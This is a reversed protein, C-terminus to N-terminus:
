HGTVSFRLTGKPRPMGGPQTAGRDCIDLISVRRAKGAPRM